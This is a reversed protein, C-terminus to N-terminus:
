LAGTRSLDDFASPPPTQISDSSALGELKSVEGFMPEYVKVRLDEAGTYIYTLYLGLSTLCLAIIAVIPLKRRPHSTSQVAMRASPPVQIPVKRSRSVAKKRGM